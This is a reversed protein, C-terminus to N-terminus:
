VTNFRYLYTGSKASHFSHFISKAKRVKCLRRPWPKSYSRRRTPRSRWMIVWPSRSLWHQQMRGIETVATLCLLGRPFQEDLYSVWWDLCGNIPMDSPKIEKHLLWSLKSVMGLTYVPLSSCLWHITFPLEIWQRTGSAKIHRIYYSARKYTHTRVSIEHANLRTKCNFASGTQFLTIFHICRVNINPYFM